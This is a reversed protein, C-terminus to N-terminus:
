ATGWIRAVALAVVFWIPLAIWTYMEIRPVGDPLRESAVSAMRLGFALGTVLAALLAVLACTGVATGGDGFLDSDGGGALVGLSFWIVAALASASAIAINRGAGEPM